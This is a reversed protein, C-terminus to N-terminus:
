TRSVVQWRSQKLQGETDFSGIERPNTPDAINLIRLGAHGASVFALTDRLAINRASWYRTDGGVKTM